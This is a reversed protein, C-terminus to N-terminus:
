RRMADILLFVPVAERVARMVNKQVQYLAECLCLTAGHFLAWEM